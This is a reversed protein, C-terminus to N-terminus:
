VGTFFWWIVRVHFVKIIVIIEWITSKAMGASWLTFIYSFSLISLYKSRALSSLFSQSILTVTIGNTISANPTTGLIKFSPNSTSIPSCISVMWVVVNKLGVQICEVYMSVRLFNITM